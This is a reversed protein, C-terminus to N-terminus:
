RLFDRRFDSLVEFDFNLQCSVSEVSSERRTQLDSETVLERFCEAECRKGLLELVCFGAEGYVVKYQCLGGLVCNKEKQKLAMELLEKPRLRRLEKRFRHIDM